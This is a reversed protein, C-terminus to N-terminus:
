QQYHLIMMMMMISFSFFMRKICKIRNHPCPTSQPMNNLSNISTTTTTVTVTMIHHLQHHYSLSQTLLTLLHHFLTLSMSANYRLTRDDTTTDLINRHYSSVIIPHANALLLIYFIVRKISFNFFITTM